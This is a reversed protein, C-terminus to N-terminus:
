TATLDHSLAYSPPVGWAAQDLGALPQGALAAADFGFLSAGARSTIIPDLAVGGAKLLPLYGASFLSLVLADPLAGALGVVMHMDQRDELYVIVAGTGFLPALVAALSEVRGNWHNAAIKARLLLRYTEDDLRTLGTDSAYPDRWVGQDVGLGAVDFSFWVSALPTAVFRSRGVWAGVCDLQAGIALDLDFAAPLTKVANTLDAFAGSTLAITATFRPQGRHYSPILGVYDEAGAM